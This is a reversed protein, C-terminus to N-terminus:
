RRRRDFPWLQRWWIVQGRGRPDPWQGDRMEQHVIKSDEYSLSWGLHREVWEPFESM